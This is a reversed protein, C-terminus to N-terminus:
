MQNNYLTKQLNILPLKLVPSNRHLLMERFEQELLPNKILLEYQGLPLLVYEYRAAQSLILYREVVRNKLSYQYQFYASVTHLYQRFHQLLELYLLFLFPFLETARPSPIRSISFLMPAVVTIAPPCVIFGLVSSMNCDISSVFARVVKINGLLLFIINAAFCACSNVSFSTITIGEVEIGCPASRFLTTYPFVISP